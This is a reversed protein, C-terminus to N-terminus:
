KYMDEIMRRIIGPNPFEYTKYEYCSLHMDQNTRLIDTAVFMDFYHLLCIKELDPLPVEEIGFPYFGTTHVSPKQLDIVDDEIFRNVPYGQRQTQQFMSILERAHAEKFCAILITKSCHVDYSPHIVHKHIGYLTNRTTIVHVKEQQLSRPYVGNRKFRLMRRRIALYKRTM